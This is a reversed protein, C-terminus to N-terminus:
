EDVSEWKRCTEYKTKIEGCNESDANVCKSDLNWICNECNHKFM